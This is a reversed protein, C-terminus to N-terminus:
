KNGLGLVEPFVFEAIEVANLAAGRLLQDGCVWFTLGHDGFARSVRVRGVGVIATRPATRSLDM